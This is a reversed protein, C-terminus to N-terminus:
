PKYTVNKENITTGSKIKFGENIALTGNAGKKFLPSSLNDDCKEVLLSSNKNSTDVVQITYLKCGKPTNQFSSTAPSKVTLEKTPVFSGKLDLQASKTGGLTQKIGPSVSKLAEQYGADEIAKCTEFNTVFLNTCNRQAELVKKVTTAAAINGPETKLKDVDSQFQSPTIGDFSAKSNSIVAPQSTGNSSSGGQGNNSKNQAGINFTRGIFGFNLLAPNITNLILYPGGLIMIGIAFDKLANVMDATTGGGGFPNSSTFAVFGIRFLAIFIGIVLAFRLVQIICKGIADDASGESVGSLNCNSFGAAQAQSVPIFLTQFVVILLLTAKCFYSVRSLFPIKVM